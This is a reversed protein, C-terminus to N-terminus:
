SEISIRYGMGIKTTVSKWKNDRGEIIGKLSNENYDPNSDTKYAVYGEFPLNITTSISSPRAYEGFHMKCPCRIIQRGSSLGLELYGGCDKCKKIDNKGLSNKVFELTSNTFNIQHSTDQLSVMDSVKQAAELSPIKRAYNHFILGNLLTKPLSHAKINKCGNFLKKVKSFNTASKEFYIANSIKFGKKKQLKVILIKNRKDGCIKSAELGERIFLDIDMLVHLIKINSKQFPDLRKTFNRYHKKVIYGCSASARGVKEACYGHAHKEHTSRSQLFERIAIM